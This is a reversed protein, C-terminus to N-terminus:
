RRRAPEECDAKPFGGVVYRKGDVVMPTIPTSRPQGWRRGAVTLVIPGEQRLYAPRDEDHGHLGQENAEAV